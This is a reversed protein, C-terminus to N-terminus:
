RKRGETPSRLTRPQSAASRSSLGYRVEEEIPTVSTNLKQVVSSPLQMTPENWEVYVFMTPKGKKDVWKYRRETLLNFWTAQLGDLVERYTRGHHRQEPNSTDFIAVKADSVRQALEEYEEEKLIPTIPGRYPAGDRDARHWHLGNDGEGEQFKLFSM